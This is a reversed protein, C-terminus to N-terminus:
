RSNGISGGPFVLPRVVFSDTTLAVRGPPLEVVSADGLNELAPNRFAPLFLNEILEESLKGGGGHGLM